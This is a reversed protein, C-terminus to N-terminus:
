SFSNSSSSTTRKNAIQNKLDLGAFASEIVLGAKGIDSAMKWKNILPIKRKAMAYSIGAMVVNDAYDGLFGLKSTIPSALDSAYGRLAGYSMGGVVQGMLSSSSSSSRRKSRRKAKATRYVVRTKASARKKRRAMTNYGM